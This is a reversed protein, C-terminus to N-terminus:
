NTATTAAAHTWGLLREAKSSSFFSTNESLDGNVPVTPFFRDRLARSPEDMMTHPAVVYFVEHADFHATLSLLCARAASDLLTYGWLQKALNRDDSNQHRAATARDPVVWHFRLSAITMGEYRRAFSDAQQECIWKSLSYPDENYTPHQEDLPFYDYRPWRSYVGGTANVSSAQCVRLIGAGMACSLANYSGVVNNNHVEYDSLGYPSPIAALHILADCGGLAQELDSYASLDLTVHDVTGASANEPSPHVRDISVVQHGQAVAMDVVARGIRGRGGTVAIRLTRAELSKEEFRDETYVRGHGLRM